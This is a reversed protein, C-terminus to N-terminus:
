VLRSTSSAARFSDSVFAIPILLVVFTLAEAWASDVLEAPGPRFGDSSEESNSSASPRHTVCWSSGLPLEVSHVIPSSGLPLECPRVRPSSGLPLKIPRALPSSGPPLECPSVSPSSGFPLEFPHAIPSSGLIQECPSIRPSSGLPLEVSHVLPSSRVALASTLHQRASRFILLRLLHRALLV